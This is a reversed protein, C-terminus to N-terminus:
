GDKEHMVQLIYVGYKDPMRHRLVQEMEDKRFNVHVSGQSAPM